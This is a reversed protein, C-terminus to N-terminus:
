EGDLNFRLDRLSLKLERLSLCLDRLNLRLDELRLDQEFWCCQVKDEDM